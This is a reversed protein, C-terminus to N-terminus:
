PRTRTTRIPRGRTWIALCFRARHRSTNRSPTGAASAQCASSSAIRFRASLHVYASHSHSNALRCLTEMILPGRPLHYSTAPGALPPLGRAFPPQSRALVKKESLCLWIADGIQIYNNSDKDESQAELYKNISFFHRLPTVFCVILTVQGAPPTTLCHLLHRPQHLRARCLCLAAPM